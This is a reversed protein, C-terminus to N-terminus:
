LSIKKLLIFYEGESVFPWRKKFAAPEEINLQTFGYKEDTIINESVIMHRKGMHGYADYYTLLAKVM